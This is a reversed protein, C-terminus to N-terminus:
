LLSLVPRAAVNQLVFKEQRNKIALVGQALFDQQAKQQARDKLQLPIREGQVWLGLGLPFYVPKEGGRLKPPLAENKQQVKLTLTQQKEDYRAQVTVRPTGAQQYWNKFAALAFAPAKLQAASFGRKRLFAKQQRSLQGTVAALFDDTTVAQGDFLAFYRDMGERFKQKGLFTQLMRIVEAGKDYITTTYFNNIEQYQNPRIPHALPSADEAFQVNKILQVDDWRQLAPPRQSASFEQDRFVTLGEKLTLQFWDRCTIRNGTWNHFYEHGIVGFIKLYDQDTATQPDALVYAANFINLGKNEMAGMNFADVAVIMFIDLDYCRGFMVEDWRMAAKLATMAHGCYKGRGPDCFIRLTVKRNEATVFYDEIFDLKGAVVALLYCPKPIPDKWEAFHWKGMKGEAVLKGNSLLCPYKDQRATLRVKFRVLNDPRDIFYTIRRMGEPENQTCLIHGSQYLGELALNKAPHIITKIALTFQRKRSPPTKIILQESTQRFDKAKLHKGEIEVSVLELQRGALVLPGRTTRRRCVVSTATVVTKAADLKFDLFTQTIVYPHPRYDRRYIMAKAM